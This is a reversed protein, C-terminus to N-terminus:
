RTPRPSDRGNWYQDAQKKWRTDSPNQLQSDEVRPAGQLRSRDLVITGERTLSAITSYPVATKGGTPITILVYGPAGTSDPVVDRVTGLPEGAVTQVPMGASVTGGAAAMRTARSTDRQRGDTTSNSSSQAGTPPPGVISPTATSPDTGAPNVAGPTPTGAGGPVGPTPPAETKQAPAPGALALAAAIALAIQRAVM